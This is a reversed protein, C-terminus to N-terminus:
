LMPKQEPRSGARASPAPLPAPRPCSSQPSRAGSAPSSQGPVPSLRYRGDPSPLGAGRPDTLFRDARGAFGTCVFTTKPNFFPNKRYGTSVQFGKGSGGRSRNGPPDTVSEPNVGEQPDVGKRSHLLNHFLGQRSSGVLYLFPPVLFGTRGITEM